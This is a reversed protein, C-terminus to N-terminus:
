ECADATQSTALKGEIPRALKEAEGSLTELPRAKLFPRFDGKKDSYSTCIHIMRSWAILNVEGFAAACKGLEYILRGFVAMSLHAWPEGQDEERESTPGFDIREMRFSAEAFEKM